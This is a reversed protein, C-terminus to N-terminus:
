HGGFAHFAWLHVIELNLMSASVCFKVVDVRQVHEAGGQQFFDVRYRSPFDM